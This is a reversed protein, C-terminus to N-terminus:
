GMGVEAVMVVLNLALMLAGVVVAIFVKLLMGQIRDLKSEFGELRADIHDLDQEVLAIRVDDGFHARQETRPQGKSPM